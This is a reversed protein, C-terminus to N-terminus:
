VGGGGLEASFSPEPTVGEELASTENRANPDAAALPRFTKQEKQDTEKGGM